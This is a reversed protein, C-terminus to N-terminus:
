IFKLLKIQKEFHLIKDNGIEPKIERIRLFNCAFLKVIDNIQKVSFADNGQAQFIRKAVNNIDFQELLEIPNSISLQSEIPEFGYPNSYKARLSLPIRGVLSSFFTCLPHLISM